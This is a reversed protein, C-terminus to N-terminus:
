GELTGVSTTATLGTLTDKYVIVIKVTNQSLLERQLDIIEVRSDFALSERIADYLVDESLETIPNSLFNYLNSGYEPDIKTIGDGTFVFRSYGGFTTSIRRIVSFNHEETVKLDGTDSLQLDGLPTIVLDSTM